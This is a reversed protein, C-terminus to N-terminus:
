RSEEARLYTETMSKRWGRNYLNVRNLNTAGDNTFTFADPNWLVRVRLSAGKVGTVPPMTETSVYGSFHDAAVVDVLDICPLGLSDIPKYEIQFDQGELTQLNGGTDYYAIKDITVKQGADSKPFYLRTKSGGSAGGGVYCAGTTPQESMVSYQAAGKILQVSWENRARYLVRVPRNALVVGTLVTPPNSGGAPVDITVKGPALISVTGRSKDVKVTDTTERVIGGTTVDVIVVNDTPSNGSELNPIPGNLRGDPGPNGGVKISQLALQMVGDANLRFDDHLVRWDLVDYDVKALLPETVGGPRSVVGERAAPAFLLAGLNADLIKMEFADGSWGTTTRPIYRPAVRITDIEASAVSGGPPLANPTATLLNNLNVLVLPYQQQTQGDVMAPVFVSLSVYDIRTFNGAVAITASVRVRYLRDHVSTPLLLGANPTAADVVFFEYPALSIPTTVWQPNAVNSGGPVSVNWGPTTPGPVADRPVGSTRSLDNAYAVINPFTPGTPGPDIPGHDMLMLGGFNNGVQRPAPVRQGEGIIRRAVNPGMAYMWYRSDSGGTTVMGSADISDGWPAFSLPDVTADVVPNGGLYRVALVQEPLLDPNAKIREVEDRGIQTAVSNNRTTLLLRFGGPFVQIVALIGILFIVIVVLIEVLSTGAQRRKTTLAGTM